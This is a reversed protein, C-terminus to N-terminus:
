DISIFINSGGGGAVLSGTFEAGGAGYQVDLKVDAEAPQELTGTFETGLSGYQVSLDVDGVAPLTLNGTYIDFAVGSRVDGEAPYDCVGGLAPLAFENFRSANMDVLTGVNGRSFSNEMTAGEFTLIDTLAM